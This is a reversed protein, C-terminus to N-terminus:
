DYYEITNELNKALKIVKPLLESLKYEEIYKKEKNEHFLSIIVNATRLQPNNIFVEVGSIGHALLPFFEV